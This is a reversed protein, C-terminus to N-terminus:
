SLFFDEGTCHGCRTLNNEIIVLMHNLHIIQLFIYLFAKDSVSYILIYCNLCIHSFSIKFSYDFCIMNDSILDSELRLEWHSTNPKTDWLIVKDGVGLQLDSMFLCTVILLVFQPWIVAPSSSFSACTSPNPQACLCFTHTHWCEHQKRTNHQMGWEYKSLPTILLFHHCRLLFGTSRVCCGSHNEAATMWQTVWITQQLQLQETDARLHWHMFTSCKTKNLLRHLFHVFTLDLPNADTDAHWGIATQNTMM